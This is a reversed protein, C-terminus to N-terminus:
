AEPNAPPAAAGKKAQKTDKRRHRRATIRLQIIRGTGPIIVILAGAVAALLLGVGIPVSAHAGFFSIGTKRLNELIFILLLLLIVASVGLTVWLGSTRTRRVVHRKPPEGAPAAPQAPGDAPAVQAPVAGPEPQATGAAVPVPRENTQSGVPHQESM